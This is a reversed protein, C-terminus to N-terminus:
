RAGIIEISQPRDSIARKTECVSECVSQDAFRNSNQGRLVGDERMKFIELNM